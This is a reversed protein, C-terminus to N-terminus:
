EEQHLLAAVGETSDATWCRMCRGGRQVIRLLANGEVLRHNYCGECLYGFECTCTMGGGAPCAHKHWAALADPLAPYPIDAYCWEQAVADYRYPLELARSLHLREDVGQVGGRARYRYTLHCVLLALNLDVKNKGLIATWAEWERTSGSQMFCGVAWYTIDALALILGLYANHFLAPFLFAAKDGGTM